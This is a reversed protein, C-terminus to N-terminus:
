VNQEKKILNYLYKKWGKGMDQVNEFLLLSLSLYKQEKDKPNGSSCLAELESEKTDCLEAIFKIIGKHEQKSFNPM